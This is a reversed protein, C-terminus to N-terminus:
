SGDMPSKDGSMLPPEMVSDWYSMMMSATTAEERAEVVELV